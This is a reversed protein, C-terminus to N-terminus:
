GHFPGNKVSVNQLFLQANQVKNFDSDHLMMSIIVISDVLVVELRGEEVRGGGDAKGYM